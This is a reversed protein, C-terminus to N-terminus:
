RTLSKPPFAVAKKCSAATTFAARMRPVFQLVLGRGYAMDTWARFLTSELHNLGRISQLTIDRGPPGGVQRLEETMDMLALRASAKLYIEAKRATPSDPVPFRAVQARYKRAIETGQLTMGYLPLWGGDHGPTARTYSAEKYLRFLEKERALITVCANEAFQEDASPKDDNRHVVALVGAVAVVVVAGAILLSRPM